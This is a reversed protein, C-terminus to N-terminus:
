ILEGDLTCTYQGVYKQMERLAELRSVKELKKEVLGDGSFDGITPDHPVAWMCDSEPHIFVDYLQDIETLPKMKKILPM